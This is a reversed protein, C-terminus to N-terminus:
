IHATLHILRVTGNDIDDALLERIEQKASFYLIQWGNSVLRKLLAMQHDLRERDAKIFPDDLIFFGKENGLYRDGLSLRISFYLQDRTGGSLVDMGLEGGGRKAVSIRETGPDFRVEDYYGDTIDRFYASVAEGAGFLEAVRSKEEQEISQFVAITEQAVAKDDLIADRFRSLRERIEELDGTTKCRVQGSELIATENVKFAIADLDSRRRGLQARLGALIERYQAITEQLERYRVADHKMAAGSSGMRFRIEAEWYEAPENGPPPPGIANELKGEINRKELSIEQKEDLLARYEARTKMGSRGCIEEIEREIGDCAAGLTRIRERHHEMDKQTSEVDHERRIRTRGALDYAEALAAISGEVAELTRAGAGLQAADLLLAELDREVRGRKKADSVLQAACWLAFLLSIAGSALFFLSGSLVIGAISCLLFFLSVGGIKKWLAGLPRAGALDERLRRLAYVKPKLSTEAFQRRSELLEFREQATGLEDRTNELLQELEERAARHQDSEARFGHLREELSNWSSLEESSLPGLAELRAELVSFSDVLVRARELEEAAAAAEQLSREEEMAALAEQREALERELHDFRENRLEASLAAIRDILENAQEVKRAAFGADKGGGLDASAEPRTLRGREQLLRLVGRIERTGIDTFKESIQTYFSDEADIELDSDRAVFINRFDGITLSPEFLDALSSGRSFVYDVGNRELLLSGEPREPVRKLVEFGKKGRGLKNDFLLKIIADILLTKGHENHGFFLTFDALPTRPFEPLPGYRRIDLERIRM